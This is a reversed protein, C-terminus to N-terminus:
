MSSTRCAAVRRSMVGGQSESVLRALLQSLPARCGFVQRSWDCSSVDLLELFPKVFLITLDRKESPLEGDFVLLDLVEGFAGTLGIVKNGAQLLHEGRQQPPWVLGRGM